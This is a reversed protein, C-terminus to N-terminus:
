WKKKYIDKYLYDHKANTTKVIRNHWDLFDNNELNSNMNLTHEIFKSLYKKKDQTHFDNIFNLKKRKRKKTLLKNKFFTEIYNYLSDFNNIIKLEKYGFLFPDLYSTATLYVVPVGHSLSELIVSSRHAIVIDAAKVIENFSPNPHQQIYIDNYGFSEIYKKISTIDIGAHYRFILQLDPIKKKLAIIKEINLFQSNIYEGAALFSSDDCFICVPKKEDLNLFNKVKKKNFRDNFSNYFNDNFLFINKSNFLNKLFKQYFKCTTLFYDSAYTEKFFLATSMGHSSSVTTIKKKKLPFILAQEFPTLDFHNFALDLKLRSYKKEYLSLLSITKPMFILIEKKFPRLFVKKFYLSKKIISNNKKFEKNFLYLIKNLNKTEKDTKNPSLFTFLYNPIFNYMFKINHQNIKFLEKIDPPNNLFNIYIFYKKKSLRFIDSAIMKFYYGNECNFIIKKSELNKNRYVFNNFFNILNFFFYVSNNLINKYLFYYLIKIFIKARTYYQRHSTNNLNYKNIKIQNQLSLEEFCLSLSNNNYSYYSLYKDEKSYIKNDIRIFIESPNYKKIIRSAYTWSNLIEFVFYVFPLYHMKFVPYKKLASVESVHSHIKKEYLRFLIAVIKNAKEYLYLKNIKGAIDECGIYNKHFEKIAIAGDFTPAIVIFNKKNVNKQVVEKAWKIDDKNLVICLKNM